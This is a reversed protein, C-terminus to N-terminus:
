IDVHMVRRYVTSGAFGRSFSEELGFVMYSAWLRTFPKIFAELVTHGSFDSFVRGKGYFVSTIVHRWLEDSHFNFDSIYWAPRIRGVNEMTLSMKRYLHGIFVSISKDASTVM